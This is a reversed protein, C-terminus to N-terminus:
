LSYNNKMHKQRIFECLGGAEIINKVSDSFQNFCYTKGLTLDHIYGKEYDIKLEDGPKIDRAAEPSELVPLGINIANRYFIRAFSGAIVCGAGSALISIPAHERSSGCGFNAGAVIADGPQIRAPFGPDIGEMCVKALEAPDSLSLYKGPVIVDTDINDGFVHARM